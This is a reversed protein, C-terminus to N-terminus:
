SRNEPGNDLVTLMAYLIVGAAIALNLSTARGRMPLRVSQECAAMQEASLGERESGLLLIAPRTYAAQRYDLQAHASTGYIHYGHGGAWTVFDTFSAQVVPCWFLTGMSARVVAPQYPDASNELLLLGSAGVADITRLITGLNGPDQPSVLAVGWPFNHPDLAELRRDPQRAVALIGQPNEKDALAEFVEATVAYCATGAQMQSEVLSRAYESRLQEPAYYIAELSAGAEVAEGVPRIGEVLFLGSEQREKRQRLARVQKIKPNARSSIIEM